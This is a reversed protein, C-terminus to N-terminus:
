ISFFCVQLVPIFVNISACVIAKYNINFRLTTFVSFVWVPILSATILDQSIKHNKIDM